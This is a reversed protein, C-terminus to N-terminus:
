EVFLPLLMTLRQGPPTVSLMAGPEAISQSVDILPHPCPVCTAPIAAPFLESNLPTAFFAGIMAIWTKVRNLSEPVHPELV